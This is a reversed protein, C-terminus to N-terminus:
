PRGGPGATRERDGSDVQRCAPTAGPLRYRYRAALRYAPAAIWSLPPALLVMGAARRWGRSALLSRGIAEHGRYLSGGEEAWWAAERAQGVSLGLEALGRQGLTQWPVVRARTRLGREVWRASATCFGCDGDYILSPAPDREV